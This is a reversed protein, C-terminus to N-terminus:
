PAPRMRAVIEGGRASPEERFEGSRKDLLIMEQGIEDVDQEVVVLYDRDDHWLEVVRADPRYAAVYAQAAELAEDPNM